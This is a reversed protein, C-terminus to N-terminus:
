VDSPINTVLATLELSSSSSSPPPSLHLLLVPLKQKTKAKENLKENM